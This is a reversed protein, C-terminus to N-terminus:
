VIIIQNLLQVDWKRQCIDNEDETQARSETEFFSSALWDTKLRLLSAVGHELAVM